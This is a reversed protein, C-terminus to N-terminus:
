KQFLQNKSNPMKHLFNRVTYQSNLNDMYFHVELPSRLHAERSYDNPRILREEVLKPDSKYDSSREGTEVGLKDTM